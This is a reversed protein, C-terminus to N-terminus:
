LNKANFIVIIRLAFLSSNFIFVWFLKTIHFNGEINQGFIIRGAAIDLHLICHFINYQYICRPEIFLQGIALKIWSSYTQQDPWSFIIIRFCLSNRCVTRPLPFLSPQFIERTIKSSTIIAPLKWRCQLVNIQFTEPNMNLMADLNAYYIYWWRQLM